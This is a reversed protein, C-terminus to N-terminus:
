REDHDLARPHSRRRLGLAPRDRRPHHQDLTRAERRSRTRLRLLPRGGIRRRRLIGARPPRPHAPHSRVLRDPRIRAPRRHARHLNRRPLDHDDPDETQGSQRRARRLVPRRPSAHRLRSRLDRLHRTLRHSPRRRPLLVRLPHRGLPRLPHFRLVRRIPRHQRRRAGEEAHEHVQAGNHSRHSVYNSGQQPSRTLVM